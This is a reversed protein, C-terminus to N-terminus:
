VCETEMIIKKMAIHLVSSFCINYCKLTNKMIEQYCSVCFADNDMKM